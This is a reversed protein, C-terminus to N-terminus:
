GFKQVYTRFCAVFVLCVVVYTMVSSLSLHKRFRKDKSKSIDKSDKNNSKDKNKKSEMRYLIRQIEEGILM